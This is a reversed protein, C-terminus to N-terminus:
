LVPATRTESFRCYRFGPKRSSSKEAVRQVFTGDGYARAGYLYAPTLIRTESFFEELFGPSCARERVGRYRIPTRTYTHLNRLLVRRPSEIFLRAAMM